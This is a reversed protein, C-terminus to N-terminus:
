GARWRPESATASKGKLLDELTPFAQPDVAQKSWLKFYGLGGKALNGPMAVRYKRAPDLPSGGVQVETVRKEAAAGPNFSFSLGSVYLFAPSETPFLSVSRELAGRIQTGTLSVVSATDTAYQVQKALDGAGPTFMGQPMFALDAGTAEKLVDAISQGPAIASKGQAHAFVSLVFVFSAALTRSM